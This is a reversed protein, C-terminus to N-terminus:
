DNAGAIAVSKAAVATTQRDLYIQLLDDLEHPRMPKTLYGDM